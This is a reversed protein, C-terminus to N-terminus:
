KRAKRSRSRSSRNMILNKAANRLIGNMIERIAKIQSSGARKITFSMPKLHIKYGDKTTVVINVEVLSTRRKV